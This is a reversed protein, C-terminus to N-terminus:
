PCSCLPQLHQTPQTKYAIWGLLARALRCQDKVVSAVSQMCAYCGPTATGTSLMPGQVALTDVDIASSDGLKHISWLQSLM